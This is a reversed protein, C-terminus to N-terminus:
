DDHDPKKLKNKIISLFDMDERVPPLNAFTEKSLEALNDIRQPSVGLLLVKDGAEVILLHQDRGLTLRDIVRMERSSSGQMSNHKGIFRTAYYAGVFVLIMLFFVGIMSGAAAFDEM